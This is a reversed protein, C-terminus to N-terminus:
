DDVGNFTGSWLFAKSASSSSSGWKWQPEPDPWSEHHGSATASPNNPTLTVRRESSSNSPTATQNSVVERKSKSTGSSIGIGSDTTCGSVSGHTAFKQSQNSHLEKSSLTGVNGPQLPPQAPPQVQNGSNERNGGITAHEQGAGSSGGGGVTAVGTGATISPLEKEYLDQLRRLLAKEKGMNKWVGQGLVAFGRNIAAMPAGHWQKPPEPGRGPIWTDLGPATVGPESPFYNRLTYRQYLGGIANEPVVGQQIQHMLYQGANPSVRPMYQGTAELYSKRIAFNKKETEIFYELDIPLYFFGPYYIDDFNAHCLGCLPIANDVDGVTTFTILGNQIM